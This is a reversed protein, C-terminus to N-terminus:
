SKRAERERIVAVLHPIGVYIDSTKPASRPDKRVLTKKSDRNYQKFRSSNLNQKQTGWALNDPRNDLSNENLHMVVANEFPPPGNFASCVARHVKVNGVGKIHRGFYVHRANKSASTICGFTPKTEYFRRGGHPMAGERPSRKIRGHSSALVTPYLPSERWIEKPLNKM